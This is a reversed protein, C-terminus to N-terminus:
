LNPPTELERSVHASDFTAMERMIRSAAEALMLGLVAGTGEGLRMNLNLLPKLELFRLAMKHGPEFSEHGPIYYDRVLHSLGVALLAASGTILGDLVVPIRHAAAGLIVGVLGGIELGGVKSLVDLPNQPDPRHLHLAREIVAVKLGVGREGLGTGRGTVESVREGTMVAIIASAATTNGIGMDGLAVIDLGDSAAEELVRIGTEVSAQAEAPTMAPEIAFNATGPRIKRDLLDPHPPLDVAVGMDVINVRVRAQRALVNIAAGGQLFNLVMQPTVESPYASVGEATVGHDGVMVIVAKSDLAPAPLQGTIACLQAALEELRGLSGVPKTLNGLYDWAQGRVATDIPRIRNLTEELLSM